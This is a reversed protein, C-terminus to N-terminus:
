YGDDTDGETQANKLTDLLSRTASVDEAHEQDTLEKAMAEAHGAVERLCVALAELGASINDHSIM